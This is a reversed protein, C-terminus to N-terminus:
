KSLGKVYKLAKKSIALGERDEKLNKKGNEISCNGDAIM